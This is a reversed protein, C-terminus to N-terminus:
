EGEELAHERVLKTVYTHRHLVASVLGAAAALMPQPGPQLGVNIALLFGAALSLGLIVAAALPLYNAFLLPRRYSLFCWLLGLAMIATAGVTLWVSALDAQIRDPLHALSVGKAILSVQWAVMDSLSSSAAALPFALLGFTIIVRAFYLWWGGSGIMAAAATETLAGARM